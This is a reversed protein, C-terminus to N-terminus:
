AKLISFNMGANKFLLSRSAAVHIRYQCKASVPNSFQSIVGDSLLLLQHFQMVNREMFDLVRHTVLLIAFSDDNWTDAM